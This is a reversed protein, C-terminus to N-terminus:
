EKNLIHKRLPIMFIAIFANLVSLATTFVIIPGLGHSGYLASNSWASGTITSQNKYLLSSILPGAVGGIGRWGMIELFVSSHETNNLKALERAMPSMTTSFGGTFVGFLITFTILPGLSKAFGLLLSLLLSGAISLLLVLSLAPLRDSLYGMIFYSIAVSGNFTALLTTPIAGKLGLSSAYPAIYFSVSMMAANQFFQIASAAIGLPSHLIKNHSPLVSRILNRRRRNSDHRSGAPLSTSEDRSPRQVPLRPRLFFAITAGLILQMLCMIRLTWSFGVKSLLSNVLFPWVIGGLRGGIFVTGTAMGRKRDFWQPLWILVPTYYAGGSFGSLFGQLVIVSAINPRFSAGLLGIASTILTASQFLKIQHPFANLCGLFLFPALYQGATILTGASAISASSSGYLPSQKNFLHYDQFTGYSNGMGWILFELLTANALFTWASRGRDALPLQSASLPMDEVNTPPSIETSHISNKQQSSQDVISQAESSKLLISASESRDKPKQSDKLTILQIAHESNELQFEISSSSQQESM